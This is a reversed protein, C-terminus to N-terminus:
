HLTIVNVAVKRIFLMTLVYTNTNETILAKLIEYLRLRIIYRKDNNHKVNIHRYIYEKYIKM